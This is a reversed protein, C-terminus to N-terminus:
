SNGQTDAALQELLRAAAVKEAARKTRDSGEESRGDALRARVRFEQEHQLGTTEILEYSPQGLGRHQCFHLLATKSDKAAQQPEPLECGKPLVHRRVFKRAAVVGSDVLIAGLVAEVLDARIRESHREGERLGRGHLLHDCLGLRAAVEALPPQSVFRARIETLRGEAIEPEARYLAEAVAFNLFSDGLFELREYSRLGENGMSAHTLARELLEIDKFTHGLRKALSRLAIRRARKSQARNSAM